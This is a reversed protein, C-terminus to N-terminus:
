SPAGLGHIQVRWHGWGSLPRPSLAHGRLPRPAPLSHFLIAWAGQCGGCAGLGHCGRRGVPERCGSRTGLGRGHWCSRRGTRNSHGATWGAGNQRGWRGHGTGKCTWWWGCRHGAGKGPRCGLWRCSGFVGGVGRHLVDGRLELPQHLLPRGLGVAQTSRWRRWGPGQLVYAPVQGACHPFFLGFSDLNATRRHIPKPPLEGSELGPPVFFLPLLLPQGGERHPHLELPPVQLLLSLRRLFCPVFFFLLNFPLILLVLRTPFRLFCLLHPWPGFFHVM